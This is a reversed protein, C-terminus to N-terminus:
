DFISCGDNLDQNISDHAIVGIILAHISRSSHLLVYGVTLVNLYPYRGTWVM